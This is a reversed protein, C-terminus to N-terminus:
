MPPKPDLWHSRLRQEMHQMENCHLLKFMRMVFQCVERM